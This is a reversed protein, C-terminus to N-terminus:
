LRLLWGVAPLLFVDTQDDEGSTEVTPVITPMLNKGLKAKQEATLRPAEPVWGPAAESAESQAYSLTM